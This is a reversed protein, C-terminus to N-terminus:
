GRETPNLIGGPAPAKPNWALRWFLVRNDAVYQVIEFDCITPAAQHQLAPRLLVPQRRRTVAVACWDGQGSSPAEQPAAFRRWRDIMAHRSAQGAAALASPEALEVWRYRGDTARVLHVASREWFLRLERPEHGHFEPMGAGWPDPTRPGPLPLIPVPDLWYWAPAPEGWRDRIAASSELQGGRWRLQIRAGEHESM